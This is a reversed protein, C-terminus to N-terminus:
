INSKLIQSYLHLYKEAGIEMSFYKEALARCRSPTENDELLTALKTASELLNKSTGDLIVGVNFEEIFQDMDGLGKNVVIPRGCALFEAIKTPMAASLSPGTDM